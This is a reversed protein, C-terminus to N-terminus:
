CAEKVLGASAYMHDEHVVRLFMFCDHFRELQSLQCDDHHSHDRSDQIPFDQESHELAFFESEPIPRLDLFEGRGEVYMM